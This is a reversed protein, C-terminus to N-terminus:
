NDEEQNEQMSLENNQVGEKKKEGYPEFVYNIGFDEALKREQELQEFHTEVDRGYKGVVDSLTVVGAKLGTVQANM